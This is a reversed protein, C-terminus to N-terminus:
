VAQRRLEHGIKSGQADLLDVGPLLVTEFTGPEEIALPVQHVTSRGAAAFGQDCVASYVGAPGARRCRQSAWHQHQLADDLLRADLRKKDERVNGKDLFFHAPQSIHDVAKLGRSLRWFRAAMTARPAPASMRIGDPNYAEESASLDPRSPIVELNTDAGHFLDTWPGGRSGVDVLTHVLCISEYIRCDVIAGDGRKPGHHQILQVHYVIVM